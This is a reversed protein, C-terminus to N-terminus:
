PQLLYHYIWHENLIGNDKTLYHRTVGSTLTDLKREPRHLGLRQGRTPDGGRGRHKLDPEGRPGPLLHRAKQEEGQQQGSTIFSTANIQLRTWLQSTRLYGNLKKSAKQAGFHYFIVIKHGNVYFITLINNNIIIYSEFVYM